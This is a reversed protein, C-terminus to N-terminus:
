AIAVPFFLIRNPKCTAIMHAAAANEGSAVFACAGTNSISLASLATFNATLADTAIAPVKSLHSAVSTNVDGSNDVATNSM